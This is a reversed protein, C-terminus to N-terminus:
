FINLGTDVYNKKLTFETTITLIEEWSYPLPTVRDAMFHPPFDAVDTKPKINLHFPEPDILAYMEKSMVADYWSNISFQPCPIRKLARAFHTHLARLNFFNPHPDLSPPNALLGIVTDYTIVSNM